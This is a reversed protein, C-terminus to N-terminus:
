EKIVRSESWVPIYADPSVLLLPNLVKLVELEGIIKGGEYVQIVRGSWISQPYAYPTTFWIQVESTEGPGVEESELYQHEGSALYNEHIKHHPRYGSRVPSLRGTISSSFLYFNGVIDPSRRQM